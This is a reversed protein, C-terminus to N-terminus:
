TENDLTKHPFSQGRTKIERSTKPIQVLVHNQRYKVSQKNLKKLM